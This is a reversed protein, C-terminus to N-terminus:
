KSVGLNELSGGMKEYIYLALFTLAILFISLAAGFPWDKATEFENRILNGIYLTRSGGLLDSVFFYGLTPIFVM